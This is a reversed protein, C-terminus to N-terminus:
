GNHRSSSLKAHHGIMALCLIKPTPGVGEGVLPIPVEFGLNKLHLIAVCFGSFASSCFKVHNSILAPGHICTTCGMGWGEFPMGECGLIEVRM